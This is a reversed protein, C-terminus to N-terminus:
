SMKYNGVELDKKENLLRKLVKEYAKWEMYDDWEEFDEQKNEKITKEFEKFSKSHKKQLLSIKGKVRHLDYMLNAIFMDKVSEQNIIVM